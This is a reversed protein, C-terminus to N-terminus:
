VTVVPKPNSTNALIESIKALRKLDVSIPGIHSIQADCRLSMFGTFPLTVLMRLGTFRLVIEGGLARVLSELSENHGVVLYIGRAPGVVRIGAGMASAIPSKIAIENPLM